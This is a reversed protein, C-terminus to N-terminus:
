LEAEGVFRMLKAKSVNMEKLANLSLLRYNLIMKEVEIIKVYSTEGTEYLNKAIDLSSKAKPLVKNQYLGRTRQQTQYNSFAQQIDDATKNKLASIKSQLAKYKQRTETLYADNKGFFNNAKIKPNATFKDDKFRSFGADFDPYFRKESLQIIRKMKELESQLIAIEVRRSQGSKIYGTVNESLKEAEMKDLKGIIYTPSLNLLANLRAQQSQQKNKAIQLKNVSAAIEIDVDLIGSLKGTNSSYSNQLEEKLSKLLRVNQQNLKIEQEAFQLEHYAVRTQTIVDQVTQKLQLRSSEVSQDIISSKLASLGPFPFNSSVSKKHKQNSGTLTIDKTFAAYQSLMDDLFGVQDYKELSAQAQQQASQIDLNNKIALALVMDLSAAKKLLNETVQRGNVAALKQKTTPTAQYLGNNSIAGNLGARSQKKRSSITALNNNLLPQISRVNVEQKLNASVYSSYEYNDYESQLKSLTTNQSCASLLIALALPTTKLSKKVPNKIAISM